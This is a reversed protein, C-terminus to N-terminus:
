RRQCTGILIVVFLNVMTKVTFNKEALGKTQIKNKTAIDSPLYAAEMEQISRKDYQGTDEKKDLIKRVFVSSCPECNEVYKLIDGNVKSKSKKVVIGPPRYRDPTFASKSTTDNVVMKGLKSMNSGDKSAKMIDDKRFLWNM